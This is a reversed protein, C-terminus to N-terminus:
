RWALDSALNTLFLLAEVCHTPPPVKLIQVDAKTYRFSLDEHQPAIAEIVRHVNTRVTLRQDADRAALLADGLNHRLRGVDRLSQGLSLCLSKLSLELSFGVLLYFAPKLSDPVDGSVMISEAARGYSSGNQAYNRATIRCADDLPPM